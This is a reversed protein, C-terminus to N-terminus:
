DTQRARSSRRTTTSPPPAAVSRAATAFAEVLRSIGAEDLKECFASLLEIRGGLCEVEGGCIAPALMYTGLEIRDTVDLGANKRAEQILRVAERIQKGHPRPEPRYGPLDIRPPWAFEFEGQQADKTVDVLVPGPRGTAAIHFAEALAQPVDEPRTVLRSHKTIPMTIGVIDAEQFADTGIAASSVQGTIFVVAQSDMHADAIATVLNTAGPGSTAIAVGVKGTALHYGQAAHGAGQEHRVLIHRIRDSDMLPDYTPMIAGGPLGFVVEVGLKELSEIIIQAGIMMRQHRSKEAM